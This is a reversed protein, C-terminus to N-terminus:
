KNKFACDGTFQMIKCYRSFIVDYVERNNSQARATLKFIDVDCRVGFVVCFVFLNMSKPIVISKFVLWKLLVFRRRFHITSNRLFNSFQRM